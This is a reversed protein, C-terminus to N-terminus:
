VRESTHTDRDSSSRLPLLAEAPSNDPLELSARRRGFPVIGSRLGRPRSPPDSTAREVGIARRHVSVGAERESVYGVAINPVINGVDVALATLRSALSAALQHLPHDLRQLTDLNRCATAAHHRECVFWKGVNSGGVHFRDAHMPRELLLLRLATDGSRASFRKRWINLQPMRTPMMSDDGNRFACRLTIVNSLSSPRTHRSSPSSSGRSRFAACASALAGHISWRM